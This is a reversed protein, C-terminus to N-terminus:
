EPVAGAERFGMGIVPGGERGSFDDSNESHRAAALQPREPGAPLGMLDVTEPVANWDQRVSRVVTGLAPDHPSSARLGNASRHQQELGSEASEGMGCLVKYAHNGDPDPALENWIPFTM